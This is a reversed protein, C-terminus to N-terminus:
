YMPKPKPFNDKMLTYINSELIFDPLLIGYRAKPTIFVTGPTTSVGYSRLIERQGKDSIDASFSLLKGSEILGKSYASNNILFDNFKCQFCYTSTANLFVSKGESLAKKIEDDDKIYNKNELMSLIIYAVIFFLIVGSLLLSIYRLLGPNYFPLKKHRGYLVMIFMIIIISFLWTIIPFGGSPKDYRKSEDFRPTITKILSETAEGIILTIPKSIKDKDIGEFSAVFDIENWSKNSIVTDYNYGYDNEIVLFPNTPRNIYDVKVFLQLNGNDIGYYADKIKLNSYKEDSRTGFYVSVNHCYVSIFGDKGPGLVITPTERFVKCKGDARCGVFDITMKLEIPKSIDKVNVLVPFYFTSDYAAAQQKSIEYPRPTVEFFEASEINTSNKFSTAIPTSGVGNFGRVIRYGGKMEVLLALHMTKEYITSSCSVLRMDYYPTSIKQGHSKRDTSFVEKLTYSIPSDPEFGQELRKNLITIFKNYREGVYDSVYNKWQTASVHLRIGAENINDEDNQYYAKFYASMNYLMVSTKEIFIARDNSTNDDAIIDKDSAFASTFCFVFFLVIYFRKM